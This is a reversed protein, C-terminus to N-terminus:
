LRYWVNLVLLALLISLGFVLAEPWKGNNHFIMLITGGAAAGFGTIIVLFLMDVKVFYLHLVILVMMVGLAIVERIEGNHIYMWTCGSVVVLISALSYLGLM